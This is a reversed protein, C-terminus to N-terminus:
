LFICIKDHINYNLFKFHEFSHSQFLQHFFIRTIGTRTNHTTTYMNMTYPTDNKYHKCKQKSCTDSLWLTKSNFLNQQALIHKKTKTWSVIYYWSFFLESVKKFFKNKMCHADTQKHPLRDSNWRSNFTQVRKKNQVLYINSFTPYKGPISLIM